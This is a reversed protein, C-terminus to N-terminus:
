CIPGCAHPAEIMRVVRLLRWSLSLNGGCAARVAPGGLVRAGSHILRAFRVKGLAREVGGLPAMWGFHDTPGVILYDASAHLDLM